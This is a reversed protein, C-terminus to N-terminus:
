LSLQEGDCAEHNKRIHVLIRINFLRLAMAAAMGATTIRSNDHRIVPHLSSRCDERGAVAAAELDLIM